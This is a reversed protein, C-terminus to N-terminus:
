VNTVVELPLARLEDLMAASGAAFLLADKPLVDEAIVQQVYGVVRRVQPLVSLDDSEGRQSLCLVVRAGAHVWGAVEDALPV